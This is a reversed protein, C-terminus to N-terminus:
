DMICRYCDKKLSEFQILGSPFPGTASSTPHKRSNYTAGTRETEVAILVVLIEEVDMTEITNKKYNQNGTSVSLM